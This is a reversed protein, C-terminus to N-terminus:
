LIKAIFESKSLMPLLPLTKPDKTLNVTFGFSIEKTHRTKWKAKLLILSQSFFVRLMSINQICFSDSKCSSITGRINKVSNEQKAM